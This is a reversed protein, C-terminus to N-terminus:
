SFLSPVVPHPQGIIQGIASRDRVIMIKFHRVGALKTCNRASLRFQRSDVSASAPPGHGASQSLPRRPLVRPLRYQARPWGAVARQRPFPAMSIM